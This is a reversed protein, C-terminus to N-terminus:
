DSEELGLLPMLLKREEIPLRLLVRRDGKTQRYRVAAELLRLPIKFEIRDGVIEKWIELWAQAAKESVTESMSEISLVIEQGLISSAQHKDYINRLTQIRTRWVTLDNTSQFLNKVIIGTAINEPKSLDELTNLALDLIEFGETWRNMIVLLEAKKFLADSDESNLEIVRDFCQLAEEYRELNYLVIGKIKWAFLNEPDLKIVNEFSVLMEEYDGLRYLVLGRSGWLQIDEFDLNIAQEFSALAEEYRELECLV